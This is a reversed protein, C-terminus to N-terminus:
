LIENFINYEEEIHWQANLAWSLLALQIAYTSTTTAVGISLENPQREDCFEGENYMPVGVSNYNPLYQNLTTEENPTYLMGFISYAFGLVFFISVFICGIRKENWNRIMQKPIQGTQCYIERAKFM